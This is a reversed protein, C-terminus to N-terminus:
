EKTFDKNILEIENKLDTLDKEISKALKATSRYNDVAQDLTFDDGYFWEIQANLENIKQSIPTKTQNSKTNTM